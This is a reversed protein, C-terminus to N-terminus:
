ALVMWNIVVIDSFTGVGTDRLHESLKAALENVEDINRPKHVVDVVANGFCPHPVSPVTAAFAVFLKV